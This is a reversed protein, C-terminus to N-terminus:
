ISALIDLNGIFFTNSNLIYKFTQNESLEAYKGEMYENVFTRGGLGLVELIWGGIIAVIIRTRPPDEGEGRLSTAQGSSQVGYGM